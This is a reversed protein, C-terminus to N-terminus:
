WGLPLSTVFYKKFVNDKCKSIRAASRQWTMAILQIHGFYFCVFL